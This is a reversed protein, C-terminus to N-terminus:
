IHAVVWAVGQFLRYSLYIALAALLLKLHWPVPPAEETTGAEDVTPGRRARPAHARGADVLQGCSPCTGDTRV